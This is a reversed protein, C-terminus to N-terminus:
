EAKKGTKIVELFKSILTEDSALYQLFEVEYVDLFDAITGKFTIEDSVMSEALTEDLEIPELKATVRNIAGAKAPTKAGIKNPETKGNKLGTECARSMLSVVSAYRKDSQSKDGIAFPALEIEVANKLIAKSAKFAVANTKYDNEPNYGNAVM